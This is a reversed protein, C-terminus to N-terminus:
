DSQDYRNIRELLLYNECLREKAIHTYRTQVLQENDDFIFQVRAVTNVYNGRTFTEYAVNILSTKGRNTMKVLICMDNEALRQEVSALPVGLEFSELFEKAQREVARRERRSLDIHLIEAMAPHFSDSFQRVKNKDISRSLMFGRHLRGDSIGFNGILEEDKYLGVKVRAIPAGYWPVGWGSPYSNFLQRFSEVKSANNVTIEEVENSSFRLSYGSSEPIPPLTQSGSCFQLLMAAALALLASKNLNRTIAYGSTARFM